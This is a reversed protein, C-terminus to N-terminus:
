DHSETPNEVTGQTNQRLLLALYAMVFRNMTARWKSLHTAFRQEHDADDYGSSEDGSNPAPNRRM